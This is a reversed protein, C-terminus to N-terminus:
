VTTNFSVVYGEPIEMNEKAYKMGCDACEFWKLSNIDDHRGFFPVVKCAHSRLNNKSKDM